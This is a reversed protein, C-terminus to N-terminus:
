IDFKIKFTYDEDEAKLVPNALTAIGILNRNDDYIGVKSIFVQRKFPADYGLYSSSITNKIQRNASEEYITSSTQEIRKEISGSEHKMWTSNNSYNVKGRPANAFLTYVQIQTEGKFSMVFSASVFENANAYGNASNIGDYAGAGFYIWKPYDRKQVYTSGPYSSGSDGVYMIDGGPISWAGTLVMFGEQYLCVGAVTGSKEGITEILEGNEKSDKLEGIMSGTYYWKLSVTGPKIKSGFAIEPVSILNLVQKGKDWVVTPYGGAAGTLMPKSVPYNENMYGYHNLRNKLAYFHPYIPPGQYFGLPQGEPDGGDNVEQMRLEPHWMIERAITGSLPYSASLIDHNSFENTYSVKNVTKFSSRASDKTIWPYIVGTDEVSALGAQKWVRVGTDEDIVSRQPVMRGTTTTPRDINYEYLSIGGSTAYISVNAAPGGDTGYKPLRTAGSIRPTNNYYVVGDYITYEVHPYTRMTNLVIENPGFKRLAM